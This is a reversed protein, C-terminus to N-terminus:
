LEFTFGAEKLQNYIEKDFKYLHAARHAVDQQKEDLKVLMNMHLLKKRFNRTDLKTNLIAEYLNQLQTLTFKPPLLEFGIPELRVKNRLYALARDLMQKHDFVLEPLEAMDLWAVDCADSGSKLNDRTLNILACYATSIVRHLPFRKVDGFTYLQEMYIDKLGTSDELVRKASMDLDEQELVFGGMLAWLGRSPEIDRKVLLVKLRGEELGFIICDVSVSPIINLTSSSPHTFNLPLDNKM